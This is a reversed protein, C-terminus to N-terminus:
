GYVRTKWANGPVKGKPARVKRWRKVSLSQRALEPM